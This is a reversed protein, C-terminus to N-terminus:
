GSWWCMAGETLLRLHKYYTDKNVGLLGVIRQWGPFATSGSGAYSCLLAYIGKAELTLTEDLMPYKPLIGYGRCLVGQTRLEDCLESSLRDDGNHVECEPRPTEAAAGCVGAADAIRKKQRDM